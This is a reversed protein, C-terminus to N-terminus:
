SPDGKADTSIRDLGAVTITWDHSAHAGLQKEVEPPQKDLLEGLAKSVNDRHFKANGETARDEAILATIRATSLPADARALVDLAYRQIVTHGKWASRETDPLTFTFPWGDPDNEWEGAARREVALEAALGERDKLVRIRDRTLDLVTEPWAKWVRSGAIDDLSRRQRGDNARKRYHCVIILAARTSARMADLVRQVQGGVRPDDPDGNFARYLSDLVMVQPRFRGVIARLEACEDERLVDIGAPALVYLLQGAGLGAHQAMPRLRRRVTRENLETDVVLVRLPGAPEGGPVVPLGAALRVSVQAVCLTKGVGEDAALLLRSGVELWGPLVWEPADADGEAQEPLQAVDVTAWRPGDPARPQTAASLRVVAIEAGEDPPEYEPPPVDRYPDAQEAGVRWPGQVATM